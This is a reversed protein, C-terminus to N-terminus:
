LCFALQLLIPIWLITAKWQSLQSVTENAPSNGVSSSVRKGGPPDTFYYNNYYPNVLHMRSQQPPLGGDTTLQSHEGQQGGAEM